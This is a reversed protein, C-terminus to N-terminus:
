WEAEEGPEVSSGDGSAGAQLDNALPVTFEIEKRVSRLGPARFRVEARYAGPRARQGEWRAAFERVGDPLVTGTGGEMKLRAAIRGSAERVILEGSARFHVNGTNKLEAAFVVSGEEGSRAQMEGVDASRRETRAVTVMLLTGTRTELRMGSGGLEAERQATFLVAGYRGGAQGRPVRLRCRVTKQEGPGLAIERESLSVWPAVSWPDTGAPRPVPNGHRDLMLDVAQATARFMKDGDNTLTVEFSRDGGQALTMEVLPPSVSLAITDCSAAAACALLALSLGLATSTKPPWTSM